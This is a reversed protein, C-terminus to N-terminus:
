FKYLQCLHLHQGNQTFDTTSVCVHVQNLLFEPYEWSFRLVYICTEVATSGTNKWPKVGDSCGSNEQGQHLTQSEWLEVHLSSVPAREDGSVHCLQLWLLVVVHTEWYFFFFLGCSTVATSNGMRSTKRQLLLMTVNKRFNQFLTQLTSFVCSSSVGFM